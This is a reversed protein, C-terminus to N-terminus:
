FFNYDRLFTIDKEIKCNFRVPQFMNEHYYQRVCDRLTKVSTFTKNVGDINTFSWKKTSVPTSMIKDYETIFEDINQQRTEYAKKYLAREILLRKLENEQSYFEKAEPTLILKDLTEQPIELLQHISNDSSTTM